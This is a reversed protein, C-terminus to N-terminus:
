EAHSDSRASHEAAVAAAAAATNSANGAVGLAAIGYGFGPLKNRWLIQGTAADLCSLEGSTCAFVRGGDALVTVFGTGGSLVGKLKAQWLTEGSRRDVAAVRSNLGVYVHDHSM